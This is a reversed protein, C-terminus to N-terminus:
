KNKAHLLRHGTISSLVAADSHNAAATPMSHRDETRTSEMAQVLELIKCLARQEGGHMGEGTRRTDIVSSYFEEPSNKIKMWGDRDPVGFGLRKWFERYGFAIKHTSRAHTVLPDYFVTSTPAIIEDVEAFHAMFLVALAMARPARAGYERFFEDLAQRKQVVNPSHRDIGSGARLFRFTRMDNQDVQVDFGIRWCEGKNRAWDKEDIVGMAIDLALNGVGTSGKVSLYLGDSVDVAFRTLRESRLPRKMFLASTGVFASTALAGDHITQTLSELSAPGASYIFSDPNHLEHGSYLKSLSNYTSMVMRSGDESALSEPSFGRSLLYSVFGELLVPQELQDIAVHRDINEIVSNAGTRNADYATSALRARELDPLIM